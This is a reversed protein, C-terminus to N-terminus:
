IVNRPCTQATFTNKTNKLLFIKAIDDKFKEASDSFDEKTVTVFAMEFAAFFSNLLLCVLVVLFELM